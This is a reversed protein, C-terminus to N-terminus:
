DDGRDLKRKRHYEAADQLSKYHGALQEEAVWVLGTDVMRTLLARGDLAAAELQDILHAAAENPTSGVGVSWSNEEFWAMCEPDGGQADEPIVDDPYAVWRGGEYTGGYRAKYITCPYCTGDPNM